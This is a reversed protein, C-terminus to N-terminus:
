SRATPSRTSNRATAASRSAIGANSFRGIAIRTRCARLACNTSRKAPSPFLPPYHNSAPLMAFANCGFSLPRFPRASWDCGEFNAVSFCRAQGLRHREPACTSNVMRREPPTRLIEGVRALPAASDQDGHVRAIKTIDCRQFEPNSRRGIGRLM